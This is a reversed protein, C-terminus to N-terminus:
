LIERYFAVTDEALQRHSYRQAQQLGKQRLETWLAYDGSLDTLCQALAAANGEPFILGADGIVEPIAGSDSGVVPIGSAMAELIVRGLQEKWVPTTRSPLVLVDLDCLYHPVQTPSIPGAFRVHDGLRARTAHEQLAPQWPGAGVIDIKLTRPCPQALLVAAADLLTEVGKEPVLRGIYGITFLTTPRPACPLFTETDVGIAPILPAPRVYGWHRLLGTAERNACFVADAAALTLHMVARVPWSKYRDVNQWTHLLLRAHPAFVRRALAIQLAALSDPEEEAHIIHPRFGRMAFTLSRYLARHPDAPSGVMRVTSSTIRDGASDHQEIQVFEDRWLRPQISHVVIDSHSVMAHLKRRMSPDRYRAIFLVRITM